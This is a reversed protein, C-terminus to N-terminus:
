DAKGIKCEFRSKSTQAPEPVPYKGTFCGNCFSCTAGEAVKTVHDTSLFGLTDAQIHDQIESISMRCAILNDRSDIDTGFYCPNVFPPSAIRVHVEKAGAERVLRVVRGTTTGRVISDEVLVIRKGKITADITNLKIRVSRDRDEQSPQIFTRGIYRNKIFGVGYPIGSQRSFGLAADLGSDPVGIVVDAQVPHELALFVGARQRAIHVSAGSIVSDPRAFYIFEFVCLNGCGICHAKNSRLGNKDVIVIEGPDIDRVFDAGISDLACSESAFVTDGNLTGMCLPRFGHPDRVAILKSPSMIVLSYAGEIENMAKEVAAEISDTHIRAKTIVHLIIETDNTSHFIAGEMELKERLAVANTLSGNHAIAMAGKIHRAVLPQANSRSQGGLTSYRVHGVAMNGQGLKELVDGTFVEPVLGLDRHYQMVGEDCIAIGCSEQGRHQLAYLALYAQSAVAASSNKSYIGFVGCEEHLSDFMM